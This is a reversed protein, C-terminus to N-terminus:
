DIASVVVTGNQNDALLQLAVQGLSQAGPYINAAEPGGYLVYKETNSM